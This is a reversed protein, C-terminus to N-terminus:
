LNKLFDLLANAHEKAKVNRFSAVMEGTKDFVFTSRVVGLHTKGYMMKEKIVDFHQCLTEDPDSILGIGLEKKSIFNQHSRVGDRSVGLVVYGLKAFEDSLATFDSAQVSCGQTNDKPYFYLILGKGYTGIYEALAIDENIFDDDHQRVLHVHFNPLRINEQSNKMM